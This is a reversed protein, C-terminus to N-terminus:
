RIELRCMERPAPWPWLQPWRMVAQVTDGWQVPTCYGNCQVGAERIESPQTRSLQLRGWSPELGPSAVELWRVREGIEWNDWRRRASLTGLTEISYLCSISSVFDRSYKGMQKGLYKKCIINKDQQGRTQLKNRSALNAKSSHHPTFLQISEVYKLQWENNCIFLVFDCHM